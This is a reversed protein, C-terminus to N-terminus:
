PELSQINLLIESLHKAFASRPIVRDFGAEEARHQLATQVHSFFGMLPIVRLKEDGKLGLALAFPDFVQSHLDFIILAPQDERVLAMLEHANRGFRVDLGLHGATARIKSAFFIDDVAALVHQSM